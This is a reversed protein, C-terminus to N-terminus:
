KKAKAKQEKILVKVEDILKDAIDANLSNLKKAQKWNEIAILYDETQRYVVGRLMYAQDNTPEMQIVKNFDALANNYDKISLYCNGRELYAATFPPYMKIVQKFDKIAKDYKETSSYLRGRHFYSFLYTSDKLLAINYYFLASDPQNTEAYSLGLNLFARALGYKPDLTIFKTFLRRKERHNKSLDAQCFYSYLSDNMNVIIKAVTSEGKDLYKKFIPEAESTRKEPVIVTDKAEVVTNQIVIATTDQAKLSAVLVFLFFLSTIKILKM